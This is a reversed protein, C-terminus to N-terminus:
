VFIFCNAICKCQFFGESQAAAWAAELCAAYFEVDFPDVGVPLMLGSHEDLAYGCETGWDDHSPIHQDPREWLTLSPGAAAPNASWASCGVDSTDHGANKKRKLAGQLAVDARRQLRQQEESKRGGLKGHANIMKWALAHASQINSSRGVITLVRGDPKGHRNRVKRV